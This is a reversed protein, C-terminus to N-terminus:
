MWDRWKDEKSPKGLSMNYGHNNVYREAVFKDDSLGMKVRKNIVKRFIKNAMYGVVHIAGTRHPIAVADKLQKTYFLYNHISQDDGSMDSRCNDREKRYDFEKVMADVYELIGERSGMASGSCLMPMAEDAMM